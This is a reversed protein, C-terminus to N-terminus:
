REGESERERYAQPIYHSRDYFAGSKHGEYRCWIAPLTLWAAKMCMSLMGVDCGMKDLGIHFIEATFATRECVRRISIFPFMFFM